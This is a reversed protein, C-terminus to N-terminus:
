PVSCEVDPTLWILSLLKAFAAQMFSALCSASVLLYPSDAGAQQQSLHLLYHGDLPCLADELLVKLQIDALDLGLISSRLNLKLWILCLLWLPLLRGPHLWAVIHCRRAVGVNLVVPLGEPGGQCISQKCM